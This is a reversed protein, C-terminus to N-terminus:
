SFHEEASLGGRNKWYNVYDRQKQTLHDQQRRIGETHVIHHLRIIGKQLEAENGRAADKIEILKELIPKYQAGVELMQIILRYAGERTSKHRFADVVFQRFLSEKAM